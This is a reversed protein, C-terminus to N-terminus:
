TSTHRIGVWDSGNNILYLYQNASLTISASGNITYGTKATITCTNATIDQRYFEYYLGNGINQNTLDISINGATADLFYFPYCYMYNVDMDTSTNISATAITSM